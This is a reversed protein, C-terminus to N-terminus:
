KPIYNNKTFDWEEGLILNRKRELHEDLWVAIILLSLIIYTIMM